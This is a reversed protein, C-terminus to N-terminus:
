CARVWKCCEPYTGSHRERECGDEREPKTTNCITNYQMAGLIHDVHCNGSILGLERLELPISPEAFKLRHSSRFAAPQYACYSPAAAICHEQSM